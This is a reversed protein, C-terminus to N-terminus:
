KGQQFRMAEVTVEELEAYDEFDDITKKPNVVINELVAETLAERSKGKQDIEDLKRIWARPAVKQFTYKNGAKSTYEKTQAM